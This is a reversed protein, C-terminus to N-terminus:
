ARLALAQATGPFFRRVIRAFLGPSAAPAPISAPAKREMAALTQQVQARLQEVELACQRIYASATIGAEAARTKILAREAPALRISIAVQRALEVPQAAVMVETPRITEALVERFEPKREAKDAAASRAVPVAKAARERSHVRQATGQKTRAKVPATKQRVPEQKSTAAPVAVPTLGPQAGQKKKASAEGGAKWRYRRSQLAEEYSLERIGPKAEAANRSGTWALFRGLVADIDEVPQTQM